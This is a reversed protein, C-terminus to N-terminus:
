NIFVWQIFVKMIFVSVINYTMLMLVLFIDNPIDSSGARGSDFYSMSLTWSLMDLNEVSVKMIPFRFIIM